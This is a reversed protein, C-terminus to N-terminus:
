HPRVVVDERYARLIYSVIGFAREEGEKWKGARPGAVMLSIDGYLHVLSRLWYAIAHSEAKYMSSNDINMFRWLPLGADMALKITLVTGPTDEGDEQIVLCADARKIVEKTRQDYKQCDLAVVRSGKEKAMFLPLEAERKYGYPLLAGWRYGENRAADLAGTDVGTQGGTIISLPLTQNTIDPKTM